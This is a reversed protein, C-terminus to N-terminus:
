WYTCSYGGSQQHWSQFIPTCHSQKEPTTHIYTVLRGRSVPGKRRTPETLWFDQAKLGLAPCTVNEQETQTWSQRSNKVTGHMKEPQGQGPRSYIMEWHMVIALTKKMPKVFATCVELLHIYQNFLHCGGVSQGGGRRAKQDRASVTKPYRQGFSVFRDTQSKKCFNQVWM